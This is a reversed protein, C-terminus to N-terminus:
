KSPQDVVTFPQMRDHLPEAASGNMLIAALLWIGGAYDTLLNDDMGEDERLLGARTHMINTGIAGHKWRPKSSIPESHLPEPPPSGFKRETPGTGGPGM